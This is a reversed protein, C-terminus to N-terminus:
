VPVLRRNRRGRAHHRIWWLLLFAGAGASLMVGMGSAATSRVTFRSRGLVMTGDPSVLRLRLPFTGSTRARVSFRQTTNKRSLSLERRSGKPFELKESDVELQLNVPYPAKSLITVPIEGTRATLTVSRNPPVQILGIQSNIRQAVGNLYAARRGPRLDAGQAVLLLEELADDLPNTADIISSFGTLRKRASTIADAPLLGANSAPLLRRVLPINPRATAPQVDAFAADLTSGAIVSSTSIGALLADLFAKSPRWSRPALAVVVRPRSPSDGYVVALDALLHHAALVPDDTRAFRSSLARDAALVQPRRVSRVELEFPQALTVALDVPELAAEPVVLRDVQQQRLQLIANEDLPETAVWTRTDARTHLTREIARTGKDLQATREAGLRDTFDRLDVPVYAGAVVQRGDAGAALSTLTEADEDRTSAALADLTEPTPLLSLPVLPYAQVGSVLQALDATARASLSREGTPGLAPAAHVPLVLAVKLPFGGEKPPTVYVMHTVLSAVPPGGGANRVEVRVPYVGEEGLRLRGRDLPQAPDQLPLRVVVAGAADTTLDSLTTAPTVSLPVGRLRGELTQSFETRSMVRRYVAVALEVEHPAKATTVGLRLVLEQGPGVWSTQSALQLRDEAAAAARPAGGAVGPAPLVLTIVLGILLGTLTRRPGRTRARM